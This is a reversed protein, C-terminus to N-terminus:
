CKHSSTYYKVSCAVLSQQVSFGNKCSPSAESPRQDPSISCISCFVVPSRSLVCGDSLCPCTVLLNPVAAPFTSARSSADKGEFHPCSGTYFNAIINNLQHANGNDQLSGGPSRAQIKGGGQGVVLGLGRVLAAWAWAKCREWRCWPSLSLGEMPWSLGHRPQM